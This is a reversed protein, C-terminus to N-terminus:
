GSQNEVYAEIVSKAQKLCALLKPGFEGCEGGVIMQYAKEKDYAKKYVRESVLADYVDAISVLQAPLPIQDEKLNDPYGRGDYREHHYRCIDYCVRFQEEDQMDGLMNLIECGKTTHSMMVQREDNTLSGPKLLIQDPIAIKGIDHLASARVITKIKEPTLGSEPYLSMYTQAMIKTLGKVRKIHDGTELDRFEVINSVADILKDYFQELKMQQAYLEAKQEKVVTELSEQRQYMEIVNSVRKQVVEAVYPKNIFNVAGLAYCAMEVKVDKQATIMVVPIHDTINKASLVQLVQYGNFDPMVLDLLIVAIDKMHRSIEGIAGRGESAMIVNYEGAFMQSLLARSLEEDDVILITKRM